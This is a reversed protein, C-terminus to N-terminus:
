LASTSVLYLVLAQLVSMDETNVFDVKALALETSSRFRALLVSKEEGLQQSCEAPTLSTTATYYIAFNLAEWGRPGPSCDLQGTGEVLYRWLSPGHLIKVNPEVNAIFSSFLSQIQWRTPHILRDGLNALNDAQLVVFDSGNSLHQDPSSSKPTLDNNDEEDSSQNLVERM